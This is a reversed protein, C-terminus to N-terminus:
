NQLKTELTLIEAKAEGKTTFFKRIRRGFVTAPVLVEWKYRYAKEDPYKKKPQDLDREILTVKSM